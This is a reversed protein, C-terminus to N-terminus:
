DCGGRHFSSKQIKRRWPRHSPGCRRNKSPRRARGSGCRETLAQHLAHMTTRHDPLPLERRYEPHDGVTRRISGSKQGIREALGKAMLGFDQDADFLRFKISSSGCNIALINM